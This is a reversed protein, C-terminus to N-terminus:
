YHSEPGYGVRGKNGEELICEQLEQNKKGIVDQLAWPDADQSM